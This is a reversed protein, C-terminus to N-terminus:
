SVFVTYTEVIQSLVSPPHWVAHALGPQAHTKVAVDRVNSEYVSYDYNIAL